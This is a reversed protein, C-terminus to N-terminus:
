YDHVFNTITWNQRDDFSVEVIPAVALQTAATDYCGPTGFDHEPGLIM